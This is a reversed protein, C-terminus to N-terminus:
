ARQGAATGRRRRAAARTGLISLVLIVVAAAMSRTGAILAAQSVQWFAYANLLLGLLTEGNFVTDVHAKLTPKTPNALSEAPLQSYIKGGGIKNLYRSSIIRM